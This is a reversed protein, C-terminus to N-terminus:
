NNCINLNTRCVEIQEVSRDSGGGTCCKVIKLTKSYIKINSWM